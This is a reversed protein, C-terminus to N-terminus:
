QMSMFHEVIGKTIAKAKIISSQESIIHNYDFSNSIYGNETLVVPCVTSRAMFYVHWGLKTKNYIGTNSTHMNILEASKKSFPTYYRSEFGNVSSLYYSNHHVCICFDPKIQKILTLKDDTTSTINSDRTLLVTAGINQLEFKIKNALYLNQIAENHNKSDFGPAGIDIGGHGVDILIVKGSLDAGYENESTIPKSPNLFEFVLQNQDNYYADWGYFGGSKKLYLRLTHDVTNNIIKASEFLPNNEIIFETNKFVTAYCFTIDIYNGTFSEISYDQKSPNNYAQPLIDFFFPAKWDTNVTLVSHRDKIEFSAIEIENHDPLTGAYEKVVVVHENGPKDKRSTYVQKGCRLLAYEKQNGYYYYNQSSYDMTGKPLYTNTPRSWDNTSYADFTEANYSIIETIKGSGVNVYRDGIPTANPDYEVIFDPRKCVIQGSKFSESKGNHKATFTITGLNLDSYNDSPLKFSGSYNVFEASENTEENAKQLALTITQGNFSATVTSGARALVSVGFTSGSSYTQKQSPNYSKIIVYRYNVTYTVSENNYTFTFLNKGYELNKETSFLGNEDCIIKEENLLIEEKPGCVGNFTIVPETATITTETPSSIILTYKKPEEKLPTESSVSSVDSNDSLIPSIVAKKSFHLITLVTAIAALVGILACSIIIIIKKNFYM